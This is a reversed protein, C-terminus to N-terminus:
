PLGPRLCSDCVNIFPAAAIYLWDAFLKMNLNMTFEVHNRWCRRFIHQVGASAVVLCAWSLTSELSSQLQESSFKGGGCGECLFDKSGWWKTRLVWPGWTRLLRESPELFWGMRGLLVCFYVLVLIVGLNKSGWACTRLVEPMLTRLVWGRPELFSRSGEFVQHESCITRVIACVMM